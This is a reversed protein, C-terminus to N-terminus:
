ESLLRSRINRQRLRELHLWEFEPLAFISTAILCSAVFILQIALSAPLIMTIALAATGALTLYITNRVNEAIEPALKAAIWFLATTDGLVRLTWAIAAGKIGYTWTLWCLLPVYAFLELLHLKATLDPQDLAQILAFALWAASNILMGLSLWQM